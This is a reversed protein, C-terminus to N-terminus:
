SFKVVIKGRSVKLSNKNENKISQKLELERKVQPSIIPIFHDQELREQNILKCCRRVSPIDGFQRIYDMDDELQQKSKYYLSHHFIRGTKTHQIIQYCIYNVDKREKTSLKKHPNHEKLYNMLDYVNTINYINEEIPTNGDNTYIYKLLKDQLDRKLDCFSFVIDLKCTLILDILDQRSHTKNIIIM